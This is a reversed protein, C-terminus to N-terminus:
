PCLIVRDTLHRFYLLNSTINNYKILVSVPSMDVIVSESTNIIKVDPTRFSPGLCVTMASLTERQTLVGDVLTQAGSNSVAKALLRKEELETNPCGM